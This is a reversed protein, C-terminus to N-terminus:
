LVRKRFERAARATGGHHNYRRLISRRWATADTMFNPIQVSLKLARRAMDIKDM